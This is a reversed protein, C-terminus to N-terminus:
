PFHMGALSFPPSSPNLGAQLFFTPSSLPSHSPCYLKLESFSRTSPFITRSSPLFPCHLEPGQLGCCPSQMKNLLIFDHLPMQNINKLINAQRIFLFSNSPVPSSITLHYLFRCRFTMVRIDKSFSLYFQQHSHSNIDISIVTKSCM